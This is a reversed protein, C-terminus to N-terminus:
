RVWYRYVYCATLVSGLGIITQRLRKGSIRDACRAGTVGGVLCGGLTILTPAWAVMGSAAFLVVSSTTVAAAILNKLANLQRADRVDMALLAAALMVGLGAGFFGGYLSLATFCATWLLDSRSGASSSAVRAIRPGFSFLLTAVCVLVPTLKLFAHDSTFRLLTAGSAGGIAGALCLVAWHPGPTHRGLFQHRSALAGLPHAPWVAIASSANAIVPPLGTALLAQFTILTGGGALANFSGAALGSGFLVLANGPTM